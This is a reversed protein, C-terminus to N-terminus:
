LPFDLNGPGLVIFQFQQTFIPDFSTSPYHLALYTSMFPFSCLLGKSLLEPSWFSKAFYISIILCCFWCQSPVFSSTVPGAECFGESLVLALRLVWFLWPERCVPPLGGQGAEQWESVPLCPIDCVTSDVLWCDAVSATRGTDKPIRLKKCM